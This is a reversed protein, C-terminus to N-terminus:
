PLNPIWAQLAFPGLGPSPPPFPPPTAARGTFGPHPPRFIEGGSFEHRAFTNCGTVGTIPISTRRAADILQLDEPSAHTSVSSNQFKVTMRVLDNQVKVNSIWMTYGRLNVCPGPSCNDPNLNSNPTTALPAKLATYAAGAVLAALMLGAAIGLATLVRRAM